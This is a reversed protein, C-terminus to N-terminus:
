RKEDTTDEVLEVSIRCSGSNIMLNQFPAMFGM